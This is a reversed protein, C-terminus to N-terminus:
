VDAADLVQHLIRLSDRDADLWKRLEGWGRILAEHTVEVQPPETESVTILRGKVLEQLVADIAARDGLQSRPIRRRTDETGEGPNTLMLLVRRCIDREADTKLQQTYIANAHAELAGEIEGIERYSGVTLRRGDRRDWLMYLTQQLLPLAGAPQRRMDQVLLDVLGRELELGCLQAPQEIAARLEEEGLPPVLEQKDSLAHALNEYSSCKSYFDARMTIVVLTRGGHVSAAYLLTEIFAKREDEAEAPCLTFLEEFQDVVVVFRGDEMSGHLVTGIVGHLRRHDTKLRDAFALPDPIASKAEASSWLADALSKLPDAGPRFVVVPWDSSGPLHKGSRSQGERIAPILGARVLSSKGSGSAGIVGLFRNERKIDGFDKALRELMWDVQADRGFFFRADDVDFAQLGRYPCQGEYIAEGASPGPAIGRIGCKLRHIAENDDLTGNPFEVWIATRLFTPLTARQEREAGPLLVPVVRFTRTRDSVRRSIAARMEKNQWPGFGSPGIFVACSTSENLSEELALQWPEGPVLHWKDFFTSIGDRELRRALEEVAPKDASNHSLFVLHKM